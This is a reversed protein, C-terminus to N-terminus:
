GMAKQTTKTLLMRCEVYEHVDCAIDQSSISKVVDTDVKLVARELNTRV